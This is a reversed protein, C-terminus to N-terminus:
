WQEFSQGTNLNDPPNKFKLVAVVGINDKTMVRNIVEDSAKNTSGNQKATEVIKRALQNFEILERSEVEFRFLLLM